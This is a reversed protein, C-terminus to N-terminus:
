GQETQCRRGGEGHATDIGVRPRDVNLLQAHGEMTPWFPPPICVEVTQARPTVAAGLTEAHIAPASSACTLSDHCGLRTGPTRM